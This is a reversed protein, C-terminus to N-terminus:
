KRHKSDSNNHAPPKPPSQGKQRKAFEELGQAFSKIQKAATPVLLKKNQVDIHRAEFEKLVIPDENIFKKINTLITQCRQIESQLNVNDNNLIKNKEIIETLQRHLENINVTLADVQKQLKENKQQLDINDQSLESVQTSLNGIQKTRELNLEACIYEKLSTIHQELKNPNTAEFALIRHLKNQIESIQQRNKMVLQIGNVIYDRSIYKDSVPLANSIKFLAPKSTAGIHNYASRIDKYNQFDQYKKIQEPTRHSLDSTPILWYLGETFKDKLCCFIPRAKNDNYIGGIQQILKIYSNDLLYFGNEKM